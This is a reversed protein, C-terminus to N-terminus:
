QSKRLMQLKQFSEQFSESPEAINGSDALGSNRSFRGRRGFQRHFFRCFSHVCVVAVFRRHRRGQNVGHFLRRRGQIAACFGDSPEYMPPIEGGAFGQSLDENGPPLDLGKKLRGTIHGFGQKLEFDAMFKLGISQAQL